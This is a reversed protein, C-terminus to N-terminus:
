VIVYCNPNTMSARIEGRGEFWARPQPGNPRFVTRVPVHCEVDVAPICEDSLHITWVTDKGRQMNIRNFHLRFKRKKAKM